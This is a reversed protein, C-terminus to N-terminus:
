FASSPPSIALSLEARTVALMFLIRGSIILAGSPSVLVHGAQAAPSRLRPTRDTRVFQSGSEVCDPCDNKPTRHSSTQWRLCPMLHISRQARALLEHQCEPGADDVGDNFVCLHGVEKLHTTQLRSCATHQPYGRRHAKMVRRPCNLHGRPVRRLCLPMPQRASGLRAQALQAPPAPVPVVQSVVSFIL